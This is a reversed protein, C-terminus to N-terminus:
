SGSYAAVAADVSGILERAVARGSGGSVGPAPWTAAGILWLAPVATRHGGRHAPIPRQTFGQVLSNDGALHDGPGANPSAQALDAPTTLHRKLVLGTLGPVHLEAEALV